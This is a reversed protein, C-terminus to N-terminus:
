GRGRVARVLDPRLNQQRTMLEIIWDLLDNAIVTSSLIEDQRASLEEAILEAMADLHEEAKDRPLAAAEQLSAILTEGLDQPLRLTM